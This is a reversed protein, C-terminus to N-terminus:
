RITAKSKKPKQKGTRLTSSGSVSAEASEVVPANMALRFGRDYFPSSALTSPNKAPELDEAVKNWSGGKHLRNDPITEGDFVWESVNGSMDHIGLENALLTGVPHTGRIVWGSPVCASNISNDFFIAVDSATNSGSYTYGASSNGGTAAFEWEELTPLRYGDASADVFTDIVLVDGTMYVDAKTDDTYYVPSKGEQESRANCWKVVDFWKVTHVPYNLDCGDHAGSFSYGNAIAWDYTHDWEEKTVEYKAIQFDAFTEGTADVTVFDEFATEVRVQFFKKGGSVNHTGEDAGTWTSLDTSSELELRVKKGPHTTDAKVTDSTAPDGGDVPVIKALVNPQTSSVDLTGEDLPVGADTEINVSVEGAAAGAVQAIILSLSLIIFPRYRSM